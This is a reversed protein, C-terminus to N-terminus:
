CRRSGRARAHQERQAFREHMQDRQAKLLCEGLIRLEGSQKLGEGDSTDREVVADEDYAGDPMAYYAM